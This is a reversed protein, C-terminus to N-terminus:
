KGYFEENLVAVFPWNRCYQEYDLGYGVVFVNPITFGCYDTKFQRFEEKRQEPKDLLVCTKISRPKRPILIHNILYDMTTGTDIIDEVVLVDKDRIPGSLKLAVEVEGTSKIGKYSSLIMYDRALPLNLDIRRALDHSFNDAGKLITIMYVGSAAYDKSIQKALEAIRIQIQEESLLIREIDSETPIRIKPEDSM